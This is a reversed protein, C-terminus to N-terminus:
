GCSNSTDRRRAAWWAAPAPAASITARITTVGASTIGFMGDFTAGYRKYLRRPDRYVKIPADQIM